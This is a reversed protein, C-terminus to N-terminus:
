INFKGIAIVEDTVALSYSLQNPDIVLTSIGAGASFSVIASKEIFQGNCFFTFNDISTAPLGTPPTLWIAAFTVTTGDQITGTLEKNTNIYTLSDQGISTILQNVTVNQSDTTIINTLKKETPKNQSAIFTESDSATELGFVVQSIGIQRNVSSLYKNMSDPVLWGNLTITFNTRVLRDEGSTIETNDEFSSIDSYFQFKNPDGWYSRSSYNIEEIIKDMQEIFYTWIICSYSLTVYDPTVVAVYEKQPLVNNLANFNNYAVKKNFRKEFVQINAAKNGDVKNGLSRNQTLNTRKYMLLPALLKAGGDRYFGDAQVSAWNEQNGYIIPINLRSGNQIVHLKLVNKFYYDISENIDKIGVSFNKDYDGKLSIEQSRNNEPQGIIARESFNESRNGVQLDYPIILKNMFEKRNIPRVPKNAM